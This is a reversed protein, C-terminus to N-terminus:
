KKVQQYSRVLMKIPLITGKIEWSLLLQDDKNKITYCFHAEKGEPSFTLIKGQIYVTERVHTSIDTALSKGLKFTLIKSEGNLQIENETKVILPMNKNLDPWVLYTWLQAAIEEFIESSVTTNEERVFNEPITYTGRFHTNDKMVWTKEGNDVFRFAWKQLLYDDFNQEMKKYEKEHHYDPSLIQEQTDMNVDVLKKGTPTFIGDHRVIIKQGAFAGWLFQTTVIGKAKNQTQHFFLRKMVVGPVIPINRLHWDMVKSKEPTQILFSGDDELLFTDQLIKPASAFREKHEQPSIYPTNNLTSVLSSTNTEENKQIIDQWLIDKKEMSM